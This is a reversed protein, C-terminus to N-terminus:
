AENELLKKLVPRSVTEQPIMGGNLIAKALLKTETQNYLVDGGCEMLFGEANIEKHRKDRSPPLHFGNNGKHQGAWKLMEAYIPRFPSIPLLPQIEKLRRYIQIGELDLDGAYYIHEFPKEFFRILFEDLGDQSRTIKNGEGYILLTIKEDFISSLGLEGSLKVLTYWIDKNELILAAGSAKDDGSLRWNFYPEPTSYCNLFDWTLGNYDLISEVLQKEQALYKENGFVAFSRENISMSEDFSHRDGWLYRSLPIIISRHKYFRDIDQLYANVSLIPYLGKIESLLEEEQYPRPKLIRYRNNLAPIRGNMGSAAIPQIKEGVLRQVCQFYADYSACGLLKFLEDERIITRSFGDLAKKYKEIQDM